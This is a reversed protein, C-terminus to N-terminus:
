LSTITFRSYRFTATSQIYNVDPMTTDFKLESLGIPFMDKFTIETKPNMKSDHVMLTADSVIEKQDFRKASNNPDPGKYQEFTEPFGASVLWTYIEIYNQMDEDVRFTVELNSFQVRDGPVPVNIFPTSVTVDPLMITPLNVSQVFWNINPTKKIFFKFGLPSLFNKNSPQNSIASM